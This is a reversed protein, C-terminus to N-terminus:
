EFFAQVGNRDVLDRPLGLKGYPRDIEIEAALLLYERRQLFLPQFQQEAIHLTREVRAGIGRFAEVVNGLGIEIEALLVFIIEIHDIIKERRPIDHKGRFDFLLDVLMANPDELDHLLRQLTMGLGFVANIPTGDPAEIPRMSYYSRFVYASGDILWATEAM